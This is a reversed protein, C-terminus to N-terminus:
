RTLPRTCFLNLYDLWVLVRTGSAPTYYATVGHGTERAAATPINTDLTDSWLLAGTAGDFLFFTVLTADDNLVVRARYWTEDVITYSTGTTSAAAANRTMGNLTTGAINIYAGDQVATNTFSDMFGIRVVVNTQNVSKFVAETFEGGALLFANDYTEVAYGSNATASSELSIIGPHDALGIQRDLVGSNVAALVWPDYSTVGSPALFETEGAVINLSKSVDINVQAGVDRAAKELALVKAVTQTEVTQKKVDTINM